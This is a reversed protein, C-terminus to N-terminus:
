QEDQRQIQDQLVQYLRLSEETNDKKLEAKAWRLVPPKFRGKKMLGVPQVNFINTEPWLSQWKNALVALRKAGKQEAEWPNDKNGLADFLYSGQFIAPQLGMIFRHKLPYERFGDMNSKKSHKCFYGYPANNLRVMGTKHECLKEAVRVRGTDVKSTLLLDELILLIKAEESQKLYGIIGKGWSAGRTYYVSGDIHENETVIDIEHPNRSWYKKLFYLSIPVIWRHKDCTSIVIKM